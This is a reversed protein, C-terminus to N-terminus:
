TKALYEKLSVRKDGDGDLEAFGAGLTEDPLSQGRVCGNFCDPQNGGFSRASLVQLDDSFAFEAPSVFGNRDTDLLDFGRSLMAHLRVRYEEFTVTNDQNTDMGVFEHARPDEKEHDQNVRLGISISIGWEEEPKSKARLAAPAPPTLVAFSDRSVNPEAAETDRRVANRTEAVVKTSIEDGWFEQATVVGDGNKDLRKFVSQLDPGAASPLAAFVALGALGAGVALYRKKRIPKPVMAILSRRGPQVEPQEREAEIFRVIAERVVDSATRGAKRCAALFSTKTEHDLRVELLESKKPPRRPPQTMM